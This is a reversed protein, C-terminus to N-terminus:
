YARGKWYLMEIPQKNYMETMQNFQASYNGNVEALLMDRVLGNIASDPVVDNKRAAITGIATEVDRYIENIRSDTLVELGPVEPLGFPNRQNRFFTAKSTGVAITTPAATSPEAAANSKDFKGKVFSGLAWLGLVVVLGVLGFLRVVVIIGIM